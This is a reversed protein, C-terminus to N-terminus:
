LLFLFWRPVRTVLQKDMIDAIEELTYFTFLKLLREVESDKVRMFFQYLDFPSTKEATIWVSNGASKGLKSGSENTVLPLTLGAM